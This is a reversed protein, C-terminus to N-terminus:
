TWRGFKSGACWTEAGSSACLNFLANTELLKEAIRQNEEASPAEDSIPPSAPRKRRPKAAPKPEQEPADKKRAV